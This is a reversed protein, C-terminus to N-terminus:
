SYIYGAHQIRTHTHACAAQQMCPRCTYVCCATRLARDQQWHISDGRPLQFHTGHRTVHPPVAHRCHIIFVQTSQSHLKSVRLIHNAESQQTIFVARRCHIIFVQKLNSQSHSKRVRHVYNAQIQSTIFVVLNVVAITHPTDLSPTDICSFSLNHNLNDISSLSINGINSLSIPRALSLLHQYVTMNTRFVNMEKSLANMWNLVPFHIRPVLFLLHQFVTM